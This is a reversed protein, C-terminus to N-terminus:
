CVGAIIYAYQFTNVVVVVYKILFEIYISLLRNSQLMINESRFMIYHSQKCAGKTTQAYEACPPYISAGGYM